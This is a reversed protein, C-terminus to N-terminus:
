ELSDLFADIHALAEGVHGGSFIHGAGRIIQLRANKYERAARELCRMDVVGDADGQLILVPGTYQMTESFSDYDWVDHLYRPGFWIWGRYNYRDKIADASPFDRHMVAPIDFTPYMEILARVREPHRGAYIAEVYAGQSGGMLIPREGDVFDWSAAEAAIEEMDEVETMVSMDETRGDSKSRASGGRFDMAFFAYGREALHPGYPRGSSHTCGVEHAFIILKPREVGDPLLLKGYISRGPPGFRLERLTYGKGTM